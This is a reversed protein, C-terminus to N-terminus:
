NFWCSGLKFQSALQSVDLYTTIPKEFLHCLNLVGEHASKDCTTCMGFMGFVIGGELGLAGRFIDVKKEMPLELLM